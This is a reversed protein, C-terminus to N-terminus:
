VDPRPAAGPWVRMRSRLAAVGMNRNAIAAFRTADVLASNPCNPNAAAAKAVNFVSDNLLEGLVDPPCNSNDAVARRIAIRRSPSLHRLIEPPCSLNAAAARVVSSWRSRAAKALVDVPCAAHAAVVSQLTEDDRTALSELVDTPCEPILAAAVAASNDDSVALRRALGPGSNPNAAASVANDIGAAPDSVAVLVAAPLSPNSIAASRVRSDPDTVLEEIVGPQCAPNAAVAIRVTANARSLLRLVQPPCSRHQAAPQQLYKSHAARWLLDLPAAPHSVAHVATHFRERDGLGVGSMDAALVRLVAPPCGPDKMTKIMEPRTRIRGAAARVRSMDTVLRAAAAQVSVSSDVGAARRAPPPCAWHGLVVCRSWEARRARQLSAAATSQACVGRGQLARLRRAAGSTSTGAAAATMELPLGAASRAARIAARSVAAPM